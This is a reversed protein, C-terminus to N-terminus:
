TPTWTKRSRCTRMTACIPMRNPNGKADTCVDATEDRESLAALLGEFLAAPPVKVAPRNSPPEETSQHLRRPKDLGQEPAHIATGPHNGASQQIGAEIEAQAAKTDKRKKTAALNAFATIERVREIREENVAFNLKLPREV